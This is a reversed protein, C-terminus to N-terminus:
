RVRQSQEAEAISEQSEKFREAQSERSFSSPGRLSGGRRLSAGRPYASSTLGGARKILDSIRENKFRLTYIGPYKVEGEIRVNKQTEYGADSRVVVLDFPQLVFPEELYELDKTLDVYFTEASLQAEAGAENLVRRSVEIRTSSAADTFGGAEFILEDIKMGEAFDYTGPSRVEGLIRVQYSDRLDFISAIYVKDERQLAVDQELGALVNAINFSIREVELNPKLRDIYGLKLFADEKLGEAKELLMSLTLGP